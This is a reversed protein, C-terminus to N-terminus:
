KKWTVGKLPRRRPVAIPSSMLAKGGALIQTGQPAEPWFLPYNVGFNVPIRSAAELDNSLYPNIKPLGRFDPTTSVIYAIPFYKLMQCFPINSAKNKFDYIAFDRMVSIHSHPYFWYFVHINKPLSMTADLVYDRAGEDFLSPEIDVKAAVLHGLIARVLKNPQTEFSMEQPIAFNVKLTNGITIAFENLTPDYSHGLLENCQKCITRLKLGNQSEKAQQHDADGTFVQNISRIEVANKGIGGKPPVHDWSM